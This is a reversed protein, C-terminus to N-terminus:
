VHARGIQSARGAHFRKVMAGYQAAMLGSSQTGGIGFAHVTKAADLKLARAATATAAFVGITGAPHWGQGIHDPTMCIGVRPGIEYGAISAAIFEKGSLGKRMQAIALLAPLDAAGLHVVGRHHADDLEFGQVQTGNVLAAHPGSLRANTGWVVCEGTRDSRLLSDKLMRSWEVKAGYLGCGLADLVLLKARQSVEAPITNYDLASVFAAIERTYKNDTQQHAM